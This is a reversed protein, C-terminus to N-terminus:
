VFQVAIMTMDSLGFSLNYLPFLIEYLSGSFLLCMMRSNEFANVCFLSKNVCCLIWVTKGSADVRCLDLIKEDELWAVIGGLLAISIVEGPVLCFRLFSSWVYIGCSNLGIELWFFFKYRPSIFHSVNWLVDYGFIYRILICFRITYGSISLDISLFSFKRLNFIIVKM